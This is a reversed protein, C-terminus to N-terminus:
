RAPRKECVRTVSLVPVYIWLHRLLMIEDGSTPFLCCIAQERKSPGVVDAKETLM